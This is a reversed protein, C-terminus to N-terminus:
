NGNLLNEIQQIKTKCSTIINNYTMLMSKLDNIEAVQYNGNRKTSINFVDEVSAREVFVTVIRTPNDVCQLYIMGRLGGNSLGFVKVTGRQWAATECHIVHFLENKDPTIGPRLIITQDNLSPLKITAKQM